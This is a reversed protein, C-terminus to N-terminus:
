LMLVVGAVAAVAAVVAAGFLAWDILDRKNSRQAESHLNTLAELQASQLALMQEQHEVEQEASARVRDVIPDLEEGLPTVPSWPSSALAEIGSATTPLQLQPPSWRPVPFKWSPTLSASIQKAFQENIAAVRERLPEFATRLKEQLARYEETIAAHLEEDRKISDFGRRELEALQGLTWSRDRLHQRLDAILEEDSMDEYREPDTM